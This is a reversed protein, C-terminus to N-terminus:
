LVNVVSILGDKTTAFITFEYADEHNIKVKLEYAGDECIDCWAEFGIVEDEGDYSYREFQECVKKQFQQPEVKIITELDKIVQKLTKRFTAFEQEENFM